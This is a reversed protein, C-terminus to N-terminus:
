KISKELKRIRLRLRKIEKEKEKLLEPATLYKVLWKLFPIAALANM